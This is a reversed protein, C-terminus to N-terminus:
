DKRDGVPPNAARRLASEKEREENNLTTQKATPRGRKKAKVTQKLDGKICDSANSSEVTEVTEHNLIIPTSEEQEEELGGEIGGEKAGAVVFGSTSPSLGDGTM